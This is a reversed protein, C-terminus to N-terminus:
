FTIMNMGSMYKTVRIVIFQLPPWRPLSTSLVTKTVGSIPKMSPSNSIVGRRWDMWDSLSRDRSILAWHLRGLDTVQVLWSDDLTDFHWFSYKFVNLNGQNVDFFPESAKTKQSSGFSTGKSKNTIDLWSQEASNRFWLETIKFTM